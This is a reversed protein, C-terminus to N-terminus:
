FPLTNRKCWEDDKWTQLSNMILITLYQKHALESASLREAVCVCSADSSVFRLIRHDVSAAQHSHAEMLLFIVDQWIIVLHEHFTNNQTKKQMALM